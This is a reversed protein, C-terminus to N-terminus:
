IRLVLPILFCGRKGFSQKSQGGLLGESKHLPLSQELEYLGLQLLSNPAGQVGINCVEASGGFRFHVVPGEQAYYLTYVSDEFVVGLFAGTTFDLLPSVRREKWLIGCISNV